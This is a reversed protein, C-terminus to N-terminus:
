SLLLGVPRLQMKKLNTTLMPSSTATLRDLASQAKASVAVNSPLLLTAAAETNKHRQVLDITPQRHLRDYEAFASKFEDFAQQTDEFKITKQFKDLTETVTEVNREAKAIYEARTTDNQALVISRLNTRLQQFNIAIALEESMPTVSYDLLSASNATLKRVNIIGVTGIFITLFGLALFGGVLKSRLSLNKLM